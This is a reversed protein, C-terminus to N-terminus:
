DKQLLDHLPHLTTALNPLFKGYYKLLGLYSKLDTVNTPSKAQIVADMKQPLPRIGNKDMCHGLFELGFQFFICHVVNRPFWCWQPLGGARWDRFSRGLKEKLAYPVPRGKLFLPQAGERVKPKVCNSTDM